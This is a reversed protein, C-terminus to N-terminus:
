RIALTGTVEVEGPKTCGYAKGSVKGATDVTLWLKSCAAPHVDNMARRREEFQEAQRKLPESEARYKDFCATIAEVSEAGGCEQQMKAGVEQLAVLVRAEEPDQAPEADASASVVDFDPETREVTLVAKGAVPHVPDADEIQVPRTGLKKGGRTWQADGRLAYDDGYKATLKAQMGNALKLEWRYEGSVQFVPIHSRMASVPALVRVSCERPLMNSPVKVKATIATETQNLEVVETLADCQEDLVVLSGQQIRGTLKVQAVQGPKVVPLEDQLLSVEPTPFKERVDVDKPQKEREDSAKAEFEAIRQAASVRQTRAAAAILLVAISCTSLLTVARRM